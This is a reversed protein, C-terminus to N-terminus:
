SEPKIVRIRNEVHQVGSVSEAINEAHRKQMRSSVTGKLIVDHEIVEIEIESADLLPDETFLDSVDEKIREESRKYGKPGKGRHNESSHRNEWERSEYQDSEGFWSAVKEKTKEWWDRDFGGQNANGFNRTDGGYKNRDDEHQPGDSKRYYSNGPNHRDANKRDYDYDYDERRNGTERRRKDHNYNGAPRDDWERFSNEDPNRGFNSPDYNRRNVNDPYDYRNRNQDNSSEEKWDNPQDNFEAPNIDSNHEKRSQDRNEDSTKRKKNHNNSM